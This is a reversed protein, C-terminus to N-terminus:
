QRPASSELLFDCMLDVQPGITDLDVWEDDSHAGHDVIGGIGVMPKGFQPFYRSDNAGSTRVIKVPSGPRRDALFGKLRVFEPDDLNSVAAPTGRILETKLGTLRELLEREKELGGDEVFRVNVTMEASEPIRNQSDGGRVITVAAVNGWEGPKQFPYESEIKLAARALKYFPNDCDQPRSAHGSKGYATIRYYACGKCATRVYNTAGGCDFVFVMKGPAGYGLGVMYGTTAGGVEENSSFVCGVSARGNLRELIKAAAYAGGKTDCAGRAYLRSGVLRPKFQEAPADVVDLHTVITYDPNKLGPRTAAYLVKRGDEPWREVACWVGRKELFTQMWDIARDNEVKNASVSPISLLESLDRVCDPNPAAAASLSLVAALAFIRMAFKEKTKPLVYTALGMANKFKM